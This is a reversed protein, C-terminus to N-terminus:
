ACDAKLEDVLQQWTGYAGSAYDLGRAAMRDILAQQRQATAAAMLPEIGVSALTRAVERMEEARRRGHEAVRSVLYDPLAEGWGMHPFTADLSALVQREAGFRRAGLLCELTLAELGKIVISRCMKVASAVGIEDSIATAKMGLGRLVEALEGARAGGLLMPVALRQPAIAAMVAAEVYDAGSAEIRQANSRKTQPSVSNIDLFIQGSRLTPSAAAAVDGSSAATVASVILDADTVAAHTSAAVEVGVHEAKRRMAGRADPADLLIDYARVGCGARVLDEGLIAGVEGFGILGIRRLTLSV